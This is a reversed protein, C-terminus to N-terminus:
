KSSEYPKKIRSRKWRARGHFRNRTKIAINTKQQQNMNKTIIDLRDEIQIDVEKTAEEIIVGEMPTDIRDGKRTVRSTAEYSEYERKGELNRKKMNSMEAEITNLRELMENLVKLNDDTSQQNVLTKGAANVPNNAEKELRTKRKLM